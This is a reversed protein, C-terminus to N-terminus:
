REKRIDSSPESAEPDDSEPPDGPSYRKLQYEKDVKVYNGMRVMVVIKDICIYFIGM